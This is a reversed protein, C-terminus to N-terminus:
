FFNKQFCSSNFFFYFSELIEHVINLTQLYWLELLQKKTVDNQKNM